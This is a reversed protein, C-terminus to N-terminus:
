ALLIDPKLAILEAGSKLAVNPTNAAYRFDALLNNENWGYKGAGTWFAELRLVMAPDDKALNCLYGMRKIRAGQAFVAGPLAAAGGAAAALAIFDRRRM